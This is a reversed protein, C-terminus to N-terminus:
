RDHASAVLLEAVPGHGEDVDEARVQGGPLLTRARGAVPTAGPVGVASDGPEALGPPKVHFRRQPGGSGAADHTTSADGRSSRAAGDSYPSGDSGRWPRM